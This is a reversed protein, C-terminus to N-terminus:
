GEDYKGRVSFKALRRRDDAVTQILTVGTFGNAATLREVLTYPNGSVGEFAFSGDAISISQLEFQLGAGADVLQSFFQTLNVAHHARLVKLEEILRSYENQQAATTMLTRQATRYEVALGDAAAAYTHVVRVAYGTFQAALLIFLTVQLIGATRHSRRFRPGTPCFLRPIQAAIVRGRRRSEIEAIVRQLPIVSIRRAFPSVRNCLESARSGESDIYIIFLSEQSSGPAVPLISEPEHSLDEFSVMSDSRIQGDLYTIVEAYIATLVIVTETGRCYLLLRCLSDAAVLRSQAAFAQYREYVDTRMSYVVVILSTRDEGCVQQDFVSRDPGGPYTSRLRFSVLAQLDRQNVRPVILVQVELDARSVLLLDSGVLDDPLDHFVEGIQSDRGAIEAYFLRIM